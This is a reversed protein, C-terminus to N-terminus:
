GKIGGVTLNGLLRKQFCAFIITVPVATLVAAAMRSPTYVMDFIGMSTSPGGGAVSMLANLGMAVTPFSPMYIMPAQYDNWFGIFQILFVTFFTNKILPLAIKFFVQFNNAGDIKAAESYSTPFAKCVEYYMLFYLGLFNARMIWLTYIKDIMNLNKVINLESPGSGVIPIMMVLIVTTHMIRSFRYHFRACAYAAILPVVAAALGCGGAYLFSNLYMRPLGVIHQPSVEYSFVKFAYKYTYFPLGLTGMEAKIGQFKILLPKLTNNIQLDADQIQGNYESYLERMEIYLETNGAAQAEKAAAFAADALGQLSSIKATYKVIESQLMDEYGSYSNFLNKPRWAFFDMNIKFSTCLGWALLFFFSAVWLLLVVLLAITLPSYAEKKEKIKTAM